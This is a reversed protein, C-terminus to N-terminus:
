VEWCGDIFSDALNNILEKPSLEAFRIEALEKAEDENEAEINFNWAGEYHIVVNYKM